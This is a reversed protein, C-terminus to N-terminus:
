LDLTEVKKGLCIQRIQLLGTEETTNWEELGGESVTM